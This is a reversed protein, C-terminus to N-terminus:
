FRWGLLAMAGNGYRTIKVDFTGDQTPPTGVEDMNHKLLLTGGVFGATGVGLLSWRTAEGGVKDYTTVGDIVLAAVILAGGGIIGTWALGNHVDVAFVDLNAMIESTHGGTVDVSAKRGIHGTQTVVVTHTGIPLDLAAQGGAVVAPKGDVEVKGGDGVHVVLRGGSWAEARAEGGAPVTAVGKVTIGSAFKVVYEVNGAPLSVRNEGKKLAISQGGVMADDADADVVVVLAGPAPPPAEVVTPSPAAPAVVVPAPAPAPVAPPAKKASKPGASAPLPLVLAAIVSVLAVVHLPLSKM